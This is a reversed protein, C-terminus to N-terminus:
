TSFAELVPQGQWSRPSNLGMARALTPATDLLGVESELRHNRRIAPGAVIWPITLDDPHDTGHVQDHGGHDAVVLTTADTGLGDLVGGLAEDVTEIQRLYADSMWGHQHGAIDISGLYIFAFDADSHGFFDTVAEAVHHDGDTRWDLNRFWTASMSGPSWLDRLPEWTYFAVSSRGTMAVQDVLNPFARGQSNWTNTVVGHVDPPVSTLMSLHAPLTVPPMVTTAFMTSSGAQSFADLRPTSVLPIADPRLGDLVVLATVM